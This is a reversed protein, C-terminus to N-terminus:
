FRNSLIKSVGYVNTYFFDMLKTFWIEFNIKVKNFEVKDRYVYLCIGVQQTYEYQHRSM